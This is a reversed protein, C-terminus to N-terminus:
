VLGRFEISATKGNRSVPVSWQGLFGYGIGMSYRDGAIIGIETDTYTSLLRYAEDEFGAPILVDFNLRKANSRKVMTVNGFTDTTSTSYSLVGGSMSSTTKGITRYRGLLCAGIRSDASGNDIAVTLLAGPYPPIDDFVADGARIPEEYYFDYWSLVDHRVLRKTRIYGSESQSVTVSAGEVNLLMLTNALGGAKVSFAILGPASTQSNVAKDFVKWRNTAGLLLWKTKDSLTATNGAVLSEYVLNAADRVKAAKAYTGAVWLPEAIPVNSAVLGIAAGVIDAARTVPVSTTRIYSGARDGEVLQAGWLFVGEEGTGLWSTANDERLLIVRSLLRAPYAAADDVVGVISCRCWGNPLLEITASHFDAATSELAGTRLNFVAQYGATSGVAYYMDLRVRELTHARLFVSFTYRSGNSFTGAVEQDRYHAGDSAAAVLRDATMNGDPAISADATVRANAGGWVSAHDLQESYRLLNTSAPEILAYPARGLNAPDYTLRLTNVPATRLTGSKDIYAGGGGSFSGETTVPTLRVLRFDSSNV